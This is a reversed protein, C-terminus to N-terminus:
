RSHTAQPNESSRGAAGAACSTGVRTLRAAARRTSVAASGTLSTSGYRQPQSRGPRPRHTAFVVDWLPSSLGYHRRADRYHHRKHLRRLARGARSRPRGHHSYYHVWDYCLYGFFVGSLLPAWHEPALLRVAIALTGAIPIALVPPAVLRRPDEPFEHHYGHLAFQVTKLWRSTAPPLHFLWRHLWYEVLTWLLTGALCLTTVALVGRQDIVLSHYLLWGSLPLAWLGPLSWHASAFYRELWRNELVRIGDRRALNAAAPRDEIGQWDALAQQYDPTSRFLRAIAAVAGKDSM